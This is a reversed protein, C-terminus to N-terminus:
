NTHITAICLEKVNTDTVSDAIFQLDEATLTDAQNLIAAQVQDSADGALSSDIIARVEPKVTDGETGQLQMDSIRDAEGAQDLSLGDGGIPTWDGDNIRRYENAAVPHQFFENLCSPNIIALRGQSIAARFHTSRILNDVPAQVSLDIPIFTVPVVLSTPRADDGTVSFMINGLGGLMTGQEANPRGANNAARDGSRNVVWLSASPDDGFNKTFTGLDISQLKPLPAIKSM